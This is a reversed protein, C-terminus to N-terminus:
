VEVKDKRNELLEHFKKIANEEKQYSWGWTGFDENSPLRTGTVPVMSNPRPNPWLRLIITEFGVSVKESNFQGYICVQLSKKKLRYTFGNKRFEEPANIEEVRKKSLDM